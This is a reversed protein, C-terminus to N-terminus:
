HVAHRGPPRRHMAIVVRHQVLRGLVLDVTHSMHHEAPQGVFRRHLQTFLQHRQRRIRQLFHKQSVAARHGHFHRDLHRQLVPQALPVGALVFQQGQAVAIVAIGETGHRGTVRDVAHMRQETTHQGFMIKGVRRLAGIVTIEIRRIQIGDLLHQRSMMLLDGGHNQLRHHLARTAHANIMRDIQFGHAGQTVFVTYQQDKILDSGPKTAGSFHKRQLM